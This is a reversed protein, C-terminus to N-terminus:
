GSLNLPAQTAKLGKHLGKNCQDYITTQSKLMMCAPPKQSLSKRTRGSCRSQPAMASDGVGARRCAKLLAKGNRDRPGAVQETEEKNTYEKHHLIKNGLQPIHLLFEFSLWLLFNFFCEIIDILSYMLLRFFLHATSKWMWLVSSAKYREFKNTSSSIWATNRAIRMLARRGLSLPSGIIMCCLSWVWRQVAYTLFTVSISGM